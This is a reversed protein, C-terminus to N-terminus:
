ALSEPLGSQPAALIRELAAAALRRREASRSQVAKELAPVAERVAPGLKGVLKALTAFFPGRARPLAQVLAPVAAGGFEEIMGAVRDRAKDPLSKDQLVALFAPMAAVGHRGLAEAIADEARENLLGTCLAKLLEPVAEPGIRVLAEGASASLSEGWDSGGRDEVIARVLAPIAKRAAPGIKVLAVAASSRCDYAFQSEHYAMESQGMPSDDWQEYWESHARVDTIALTQALTSVAGAAKAGLNGLAKAAKGIQEADGEKLMQIWSKISMRDDKVEGIM